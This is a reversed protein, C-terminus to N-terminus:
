SYSFRFIDPPYFRQNKLPFPIFHFDNKYVTGREATRSINNIVQMSFQRFRSVFTIDKVAYSVATVFIPESYAIIEAQM